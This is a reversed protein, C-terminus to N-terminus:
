STMGFMLGGNVDIVQGTVYDSQPSCLFFAVEAVDDATGVRGLAIRATLDTRRGPAIGLEVRHGSLEIAGAEGRDATLRTDIFGPAIANVTVGHPGWEKALTKTMGIIGSKAAAYNAQTANGMTGSVSAMNVVKRAPEGEARAALLHPAAARLLRFPAVLNVDLMLTFQEDTMEALPANWNFGANNFVIDVGNWRDTAARVIADPAGPETIDGEFTAVEGHLSAAAQDLAEGDLDALLVRAGAAALKTAAALGIGRAAGTVIASRGALSATAPPTNV